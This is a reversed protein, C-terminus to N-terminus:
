DSPDSAPLFEHFYLPELVLVPGSSTKFSMHVVEKEVDIDVSPVAIEGSESPPWKERSELMIDDQKDDLYQRCLFELAEELVDSSYITEM